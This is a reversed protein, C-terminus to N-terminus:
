ALRRSARNKVRLFLWPFVVEGKGERPIGVVGFIEDPKVWPGLPAGLGGGKIVVNVQGQGDVPGAITGILGFDRAM